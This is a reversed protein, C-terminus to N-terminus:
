SLMGEIDFDPDNYWLFAVSSVAAKGTQKSLEQIRKRQENILNRKENIV